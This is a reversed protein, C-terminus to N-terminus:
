LKREILLTGVAVCREGKDCIVITYYTGAGKEYLWECRDDWASETVWGVKEQVRLVDLYGKHYDSKCLPRVSYGEPLTFNMACEGIYGELLQPPWLPQDSDIPDRAGEPIAQLAQANTVGVDLGPSFLARAFKSENLKASDFRSQAPPSVNPDRAFMTDPNTIARVLRERKSLSRQLGSM